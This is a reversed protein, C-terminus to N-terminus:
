TRGCHRATFAKATSGFQVFAEPGDAPKWFANRGQIVRVGDVDLSMDHERITLRYTHFDDATNLLHFRDSFYRVGVASLVLGEQHRGNSIWLGM